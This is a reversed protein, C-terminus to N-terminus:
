CYREVGIMQTDSYRDGHAFGVPMIEDIRSRTDDTMTFDAATLIEQLHEPTRTGPIPILHDGQDLVWAIALGATPVGLEAALSRFRDFYKLNEALNESQFRPNPKRIDMDGFNAPDPPVEGFMGRALPSFPVFAAGVERCAQIVGLEPMRSWLSYESQVARVQGVAAARRLSSPSIESFGIGGIKGSEQHELLFGMVDEIPIDQQRRHVYYLDVHDVGLRSLSKNLEEELHRKSNNFGRNGDPDRWIGGKTAISFKNPHDKIFSGIVSESVGNGYVNATDLHTIGADLALALTRHSTAEDTAGYFGAFSMCGLAIEGVNPGDRGLSRQKM